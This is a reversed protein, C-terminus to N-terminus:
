REVERESRSEIKRNIWKARENEIEEGGGERERKLM